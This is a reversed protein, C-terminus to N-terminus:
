PAEPAEWGGGLAQYLTVTSSLKLQMVESARLMTAFSSRQLDLVELYSSVGNDYRVWALDLARKAAEVQAVRSQLERDYTNVAVLADEVERMANVFTNQYTFLLQETLERNLAVRRKNEKSNFIPGLVQAGLDAFAVAPNLLSAGLNASLTINPYLLAETAGLRYTQAQLQHEVARIDPRRDLLRSPMGVPLVPPLVQEQLPLGRPIDMPPRGLLVSIGNETQTRLRTFTQIIAKAEEVQIQAQNVIVESVLGANNRAKTIELNSQWTAATEEAILLRNDLDRLLFYANAVGGVLALTISRYAEETALFDQYSADRLNRFQGWLDVQYSVPVVPAVSSTTQVSSLTTGVDLGYNVRPFLNARVIDLQAEAQRIRTGAVALDLNNTLATDLLALLVPDKFLSWWPLNAVEASEQVSYRYATPLGDTPREYVQGLRCGSLLLFAGFFTVIVRRRKVM